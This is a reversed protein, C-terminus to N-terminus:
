GGGKVYQRAAETVEATTRTRADMVKLFLEAEKRGKEGDDPLFYGGGPTSLIPAGRIRELSIKTRLGRLDSVGVLEALAKASIANEMGKPLLATISSIETSNTTYYFPLFDDSILLQGEERSSCVYAGIQSTQLLLYKECSLKM